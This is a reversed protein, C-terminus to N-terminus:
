PCSPLSIVSRYREDLFDLPRVGARALVEHAASCADTSNVEPAPFPIAETGVGNLEPPYNGRVYARAKKNVRRAKQPAKKLSSSWYFNNVVNGAAGETLLTGYGVGWNWIVNNRMDVQTDPGPMMKDNMKVKPNRQRANVLLNRHLTIRSANDTILFNKGTGVPNSFISWSITVDHANWGININEDVSNRISVHDVVVNYVGQSIQIGDIAADLIRLGRIIVDHQGGRLGNIRLGGGKLTIGPSPATFGDITIFAGKVDIFKRQVKIEGAVDFVVYRNGRSLADRLSGPGSDNLNTVRYVPQGKGGPTTAGFGEYTAAPLTWSQQGLALSAFLFFTVFALTISKVLKQHEM